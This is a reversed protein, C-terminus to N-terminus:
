WLDHLNETGMHHGIVKRIGIGCSWVFLLCSKKSVSVATVHAVIRWVHLWSGEEEKGRNVKETADQHNQNQCIEKTLFILFLLLIVVICTVILNM